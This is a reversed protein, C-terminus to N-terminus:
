GGGDRFSLTPRRLEKGREKVARHVRLVRRRGASDRGSALLRVPRMALWRFFRRHDGDVRRREELEPEAARAATEGVPRWREVAAYRDPRLRSGAVREM